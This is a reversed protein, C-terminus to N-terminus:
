YWAWPTLLLNLRVSLSTRTHTSYVHTHTHTHQRPEEKLHYDIYYTTECIVGITKSHLLAAILERPQKVRITGSSEETFCM